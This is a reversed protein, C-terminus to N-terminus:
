TIIIMDAHHKWQELLAIRAPELTSYFRDRVYATTRGRVKVDRKYRRKLRKNPASEFYVRIDALHRIKPHFAMTGEVFLVRTHPIHKPELERHTVLDHVPMTIPKGLRWGKIHEALLDLKVARPDDYYLPYKEAVSQEKFYLDTSVVAAGFEKALRSTFSTKGSGMTGCVLVVVTGSRIQEIRRKLEYFGETIRYRPINAVYREYRKKVRMEKAKIESKRKRLAKQSFHKPMRYSPM